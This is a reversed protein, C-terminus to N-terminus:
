STSGRRRGAHRRESRNRSWPTGASRAGIAAGDAGCRERRLAPIPAARHESRASRRAVPMRGAPCTPRPRHRPPGRAAAPQRGNRPRPTPRLLGQHVALRAPPRKSGQEGGHVGGSGPRSGDEAFEDGRPHEVVAGGLTRVEVVGCTGPHRRRGSRPTPERASAPASGSHGTRPVVTVRRTPPATTAATDAMTSILSSECPSVLNAADRATTSSAPRAATSVGPFM